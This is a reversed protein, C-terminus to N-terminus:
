RKFRARKDKAPLGDMALVAVLGSVWYALMAVSSSVLYGGYGGFASRCAKKLLLQFVFSSAIIPLITLIFYHRRPEPRPM